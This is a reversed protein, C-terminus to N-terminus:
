EFRSKFLLVRSFQESVRGAALPAGTQARRQKAIGYLVRQLDCAERTGTGENHVWHAGIRSGEVLAETEHLERPCRAHCKLQSLVEFAKGM